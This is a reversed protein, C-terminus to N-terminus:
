STIPFCCEQTYIKRSPILYRIKSPM